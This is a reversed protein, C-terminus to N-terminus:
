QRGQVSMIFPGATRVAAELGKEERLDVLWDRQVKALSKPANGTKIAEKYFDAMFQATAQDYVPWLTMLLNQAGAM